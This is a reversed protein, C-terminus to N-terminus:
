RWIFTLNYGTTSSKWSIENYVKWNVAKLFNYAFIQCNKMWSKIRQCLKYTAKLEVRPWNTEGYRGSRSSVNLHLIFNMNSFLSFSVISLKWKTPYKISSFLQKSNKNESVLSAQWIAFRCFSLFCYTYFPFCSIFRVLLSIFHFTVKYPSELSIHEFM